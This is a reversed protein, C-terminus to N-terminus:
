PSGPHFIAFSINRYLSSLAINLPIKINKVYCNHVFFWKMFSHEAQFIIVSRSITHTTHHNNRDFSPASISQVFLRYKQFCRINVFFKVSTVHAHRKHTYLVTFTHYLFPSVSVDLRTIFELFSSTILTETWSRYM